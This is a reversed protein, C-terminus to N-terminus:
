TRRISSDLSKSHQADVFTHDFGGPVAHTDSRADADTDAYAAARSHNASLSQGLGADFDLGADDHTGCRTNGYRFVKGDRHYYPYYRRDGDAHFRQATLGL